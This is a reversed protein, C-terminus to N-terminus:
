PHEPRCRPCLDNACTSCIPTGCLACELTTETGGCSQCVRERGRNIVTAKAKVKARERRVMRGSLGRM